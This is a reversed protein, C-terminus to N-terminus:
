RRVADGHPVGEPRFTITRPTGPATDGFDDRYPRIAFPRESGIPEGQDAIPEVTIVHTWRSGGTADKERLDLPLRLVSPFPFGLPNSFWDDGPFEEEGATQFDEVGSFPGWGTDDRTTIAGSADPVFKGYSLWIADPKGHDRVMWGEYIWGPTLPSLRVWQDNQPTQRPAMNFLWVGCEEFSPYGNMFNDSPSFMTFQGPVQKLPLNGLTLANEVSLTARGGKWEGKMLRHASPSGAPDKLTQVTVVISAPENTPLAVDLTGSTGSVALTGLPTAGGAADLSWAEYRGQSVPDLAVLGTVTLQLRAQASPGTSEPSDGGGCATLGALMALVAQRALAAGRQMM